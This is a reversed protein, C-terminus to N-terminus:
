TGRGTLCDIVHCGRVHPGPCRLHEVLVADAGVEELADALVGLRVPDLQGSPLLRHEYAAESLHKLTGNNWTLWTPDITRPRFPTGYVCRILAVQATSAKEWTDGHKTGPSVAMCAFLGGIVINLGQGGFQLRSPQACTSPRTILGHWVWTTQSVVDPVVGRRDNEFSALGREMEERALDLEQWSVEEDAHREALEVLEREPQLLLHWIGRCCAVLFLRDKRHNDGQSLLKLM